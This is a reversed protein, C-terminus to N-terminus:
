LPSRAPAAPGAQGLSHEGRSLHGARRADDILESLSLPPRPLSKLLADAEALVLDVGDETGPERLKRGADACLHMIRLEALWPDGPFRDRAIGTLRDLRKQAESFEGARIQWLCLASELMLTDLHDQRGAAKAEEVLDRAVRLRRQWVIDIEPDDIAQSLVPGMFLETFTVGNLYNPGLSDEHHRNFLQMALTMTARTRLAAEQNFAARQEAVRLASRAVRTEANGAWFAAAAILGVGVAISVAGFVTARPSRRFALRARRVPGPRAWALEEGRGWAELDNALADATAYRSPVHPSLARRCISALDQDTGAPLAPTGTGTARGLYDAAEVETTGHPSRGAIMWYLIAGLSYVDTTTASAAQDRRFQEPSMFALSGLRAAPAAGLSPIAIGFDAVKPEGLESFLVNAPKVDRHVLGASHAAQVGRAIGVVLEAAVRPSPVSAQARRWAELSGGRLYEYVICPAGDGDMFRDLIRVVNPHIVRRAKLSEDNAIFEPFTSSANLRKVAVWAPHAPSSLARDQALYMISQSGVGLLQMLLYKPEGDPMAPGAAVPLSLPTGQVAAAISVTSRMAEELLCATRIPEALDPYSTALVRGAVDVPIGASRMSRLVAEIAADLPLARKPLDPVAGLFYALDIAVGGAGVEAIADALAEDSLASVRRLDEVWAALLSEDADDSLVTKQRILRM